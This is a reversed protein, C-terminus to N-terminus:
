STSDLSSDDPRALPHVSAVSLFSMSLALNLSILDSHQMGTSYQIEYCYYIVNPEINAPLISTPKFDKLSVGPM